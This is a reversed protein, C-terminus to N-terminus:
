ISIIAQYMPSFRFDRIVQFPTPLFIKKELFFMRAFYLDLCIAM